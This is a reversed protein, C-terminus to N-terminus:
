LEMRDIERYSKLNFSTLQGETAVYFDDGIRLGRAGQFGWEAVEDALAEKFGREDSYTFLYYCDDEGDVSFGVLGREADVFAARHDYLADAWYTGELTFSTLERVDTPDSTDFMSLKLGQTVRGGKETAMGIGLLRGEGFPHLYESFGPIKLKGVVRPHRPDALDVTFLPDVEKYTVFYGVAGMLRAAYVKEGPALNDLEGVTKLHEDLVYVGSSQPEGNEYRTTVVRTYGEYEDLSFADDIAGPVETEGVASIKGQDYSLKCFATRDSYGRSAQSFAPDIEDTAAEDVDDKQASPNWVAGYAYISETSVYVDDVRCTLAASDVVTDSDDLAVSGVVLYQDAEGEDPVYINGCKVQQEGVEPIYAASDEARATPRINFATFLYLYGNVLRATHYAGEQKVRTVKQPSSPDSVDYTVISTVPNWENESEPYQEVVAFLRDESLFFERFAAGKPARISSTKQMKGADTKVIDIREGWDQLTYVCTGDTKAIDAEDVGETRVNTQSFDSASGDKQTDSRASFSEAMAMATGENESLGENHDRQEARQKLGLLAYLEEYSSATPIASVAADSESSANASSDAGNLDSAPCKFVEGAVEQEAGSPVPAVQLAAMVGIGALVALCAAAVSPILWRRRGSRRPRAPASGMSPGGAEEAAQLRAAVAAPDLSAPPEINECAQRLAEVVRKENADM